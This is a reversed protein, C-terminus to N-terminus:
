VGHRDRGKPLKYSASFIHFTFTWNHRKTTLIYHQSYLAPVLAALINGLVCLSFCSRFFQVSISRWPLRFAPALSLPDVNINMKLILGWPFRQFTKLNNGKTMNYWYTVLIEAYLLSRATHRTWDVVRSILNDALGISSPIHSSQSTVTQMNEWDQTKLSM